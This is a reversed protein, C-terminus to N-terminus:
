EVAAGNQINIHLKVRTQYEKRVKGAKGDPSVKARDMKEFFCVLLVALVTM